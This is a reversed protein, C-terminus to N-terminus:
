KIAPIIEKRLLDIAEAPNPGLESFMVQYFGHEHAMACVEGIPERCAGPEGAVFIADVMADTVYEGLEERPLGRARAAELEDIGRPAVGLTLFDADTFGRRRYGMLRSGATGRAFERAAAHDRSVSLKIEAVRPMPAPRDAHAAAQDAAQLLGGLQGTRAAVLFHSGFMIGDMWRGAVEMALPGNGGSYIRVPSAPACELRFKTEPVLNFYESLTPYDGFRIEEGDLLSRLCQASERLMSIPKPSHVLTPTSPNGRAIALDLEHGEMLESLAVATGALNIPNRFYQVMVASGLKIPVKAALAGLVVEASRHPLNDTVWIQDLGNAQASQALGILEQLPYGKFTPLHLQIGVEMGAAM